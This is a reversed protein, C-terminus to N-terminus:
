NISNKYIHAYTLAIKGWNFSDSLFNFDIKFLSYNTRLREISEKISRIDNPNCSVCYESSFFGDIGEDQSYLVPLGQSMAEIYVLGFTEALSPMAFADSHRYEELLECLDNIKGKYFIIDRYKDALSRIIKERDGGGGILTLQYKIKHNKNLELVSKILREVNKGSNFNGVYILKFINEDIRQLKQPYRNKLWFDDIGNPIVISKAEIDARIKRMSPHSLVRKRHAPSIFIIKSANKIICRGYFRLHFMYSLFINIDTNRVAIIYPTGYLKNLEYAIAGDSYWTHAHILSINNLNQRQINSLIKNKKHWFNIRCYKTLINSYVINSSDHKFSYYNGNIHKKNRIPTYVMQEVGLEDLNKVLNYYIKSGSYDNAIHLIKM